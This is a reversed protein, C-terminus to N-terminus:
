NSSSTVSCSGSPHVRQTRISMCVYVGSCVHMGAHVCLCLRAHACVDVCWVYRPGSAVQWTDAAGPGGTDLSPWLLILDSLPMSPAMLLHCSAGAQSGTRRLLRCTSGLKEWGLDTFDM